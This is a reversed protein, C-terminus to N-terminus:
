RGSAIVQSLLRLYSFNAPPLHSRLPLGKSCTIIMGETLPLSSQTKTIDGFFKIYWSLWAFSTRESQPDVTFHTLDV